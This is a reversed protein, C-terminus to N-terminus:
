PRTDALRGLWETLLNREAATLTGAPAAPLAQRLANAHRALADDGEAPAPRQRAEDGEAIIASRVTEWMVGPLAPDRDDPAIALQTVVVGVGGGHVIETAREVSIRLRGAAAIRDVMRRLRAIAESRAAARAPEPDGFALLYCAPESLGFRIHLDWARALDAVPDDTEVLAGKDALYDRLGRRAVADLLGDKDGFLRYITPPQVGAAASVSRTTMADRGSEALLRGAARIIRDRTAQASATSREEVVM